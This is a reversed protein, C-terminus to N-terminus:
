GRNNLKSHCATSLQFDRENEVKENYIVGFSVWEQIPKAHETGCAPIDDVMLTAQRGCKCKM